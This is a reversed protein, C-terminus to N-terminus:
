RKKDGKVVPLNEVHVWQHYSGDFMAVDYGLYRAVFFNHSAQLGVECYTIVKSGPTVGRAAFLQRLKAPELFVPRMPDAVTEAWFIHDAGALHGDKYRKDPRSDLLLVASEPQTAKRADDLVARLSEEVHPTFSAKQAPKPEDTSLPRKEATWQQISGNLLATKDAHGMYALTFYIRGAGPYWEPTYIVVRTNDGIGLNELATKLKEVPPLEVMLGEDGLVFEPGAFRAGPIHGKDYDKRSDAIHLIVVNPDSLHDALWATSVLMEPHAAEEAAMARKAPIALLFLATSILLSAKKM